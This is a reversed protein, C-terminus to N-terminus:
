LFQSCSILVSHPCCTSVCHKKYSSGFNIILLPKTFSPWARGKRWGRHGWGGEWVLLKDRGPLAQCLAKAQATTKILDKIISWERLSSLCFVSCSPSPLPPRLSPPLSIFYGAKKRKELSFPHKIKDTPLQLTSFM